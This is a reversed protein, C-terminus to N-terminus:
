VDRNVKRIKVGAETLMEHSRAYKPGWEENHKLYHDKIPLVIQVIGSQILAQACQPCPYVLVYATCGKLRVGHRASNFIANAEAHVFWHYKEGDESTFRRKYPKVGRPLGNYGTSVIQNDPAVLVCGVKTNTDESKERVLEVMKLFYLDWQIQSSM